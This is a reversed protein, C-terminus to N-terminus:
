DFEFSKPAIQYPRHRAVNILLGLALFNTLLSSGGYSIFPLTMGTVPTLGMTMGVNIFMQAAFLATIGVALLRGFPDTQSHAIEVGCLIILCYLALVLLAGRFGWQHAIIAFIFDNHQDPTPKYLVYPSLQFGHGTLRGSGICIKSQYLQYGHGRFWEPDDTNQRFLGEIREKQYNEMLGYYFIPMFLIGLAVVALLHKIRAGAVFLVAFLIPLFLLVTGLDPQLLIFVMPVLTLTFPAVLGTLTRYNKRHRLYWALALIYTLKALESPQLRVLSSGPIINIWRSAGRVYPVISNLQLYKGVLVLVLLSLSLIFLPYSLRGLRRYHFLNAITFALLGLAIWILQKRDEGHPPHTAHIAGLGIFLLLAIALIMILRLGGLRGHWIRTLMRFIRFLSGTPYFWLKYIVEYVRLRTREM